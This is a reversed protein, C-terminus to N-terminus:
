QEDGQSSSDSSTNVEKPKLSDLPLYPLINGGKVQSGDMLVKNTTSFIEEMTELSMRIATIEPATKYASLISNFRNAQGEAEQIMQQKYGAAEQIMSEADGRAEPIIKNRYAEADNRLRELDARARQVDRFADIVEAPPDVRQLQVETIEIGAQYEDMLDQLLTKVKEEIQRRGEAMSEAIPTQGIVERMTSESAAKVTANPSRIKFLFDGADKIRWFVTFNIDVINEDGTLMLSEEPIQSSSGDKGSRFGIDIRNIRTVSPLLVTEIPSPLHYNLGAQSTRVWKGFRLVIGVEDPQVRYFGTLMWLIFLGIFILFLSKKEKLFPPLDGGKKSNSKFFDQFSKPADGFPTKRKQTWPNADDSSSSKKRIEDDSRPGWPGKELWLKQM